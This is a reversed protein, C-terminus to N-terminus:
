ARAMTSRANFRTLFGFDPQHVDLMDQVAKSTVGIKKGVIREGEATRRELFRLSIQYADDITIGAERSTLPALVERARLAVFLEDGLTRIKAASLTM